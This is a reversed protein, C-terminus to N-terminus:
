GDLRNQCQRRSQGVVVGCGGVVCGCDGVGVLGAGVARALQRQSSSFVELDRGGLLVPVGVVVVVAELVVGLGRELM